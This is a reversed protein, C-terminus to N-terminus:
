PLSMKLKFRKDEMKASIARESPTVGSRLSARWVARDVALEEWSDPSLMFANLSKKCLDKFRLKPRGRTRKADSLEGFLIQKPICNNPLRKVHGLWRLRRNSLISVLSPIKARHLVETNTVKDQWRINMIKRLCRMHFSNLRKEQRSYTTWTESGYLLPSLGCAQSILIKTKLTLKM